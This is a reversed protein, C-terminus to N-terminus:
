VQRDFEDLESRKGAIILGRRITPDKNDVFDRSKEVGGLSRGTSLLTM